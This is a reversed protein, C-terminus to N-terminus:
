ANEMLAAYHNEVSAPTSDPGIDDLVDALIESAQGVNMNHIADLAIEVKLRMDRWARWNAELRTRAM